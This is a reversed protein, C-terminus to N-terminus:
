KEKTTAGRQSSATGAACQECRTQRVFGSWGGQPHNQAISPLHALLFLSKGM